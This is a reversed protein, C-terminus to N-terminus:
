CDIEQSVAHDTNFDMTGVLNNLLEVEASPDLGADRKALITGGYVLVMPDCMPYDTAASLPQPKIACEYEFSTFEPSIDPYFQVVPFRGPSQRICYYKPYGLPDGASLMKLNEIELQEFTIKKLPFTDPSGAYYKIWNLYSVYECNIPYIPWLTPGGGHTSFAGRVKLENMVGINTFVTRYSDNIFDLMLQAHTDTIASSAPLRLRRQIRNIIDLASLDGVSYPVESMRFHCLGSDPRVLGGSGDMLWIRYVTGKVPTLNTFTGTYIGKESSETLAVFSGPAPTYGDPEMGDTPSDWHQTSNNWWVGAGFELSQILAYLTTFGTDFRARVSYAM